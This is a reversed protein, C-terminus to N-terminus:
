KSYVREIGEDRAAQLAEDSFEKEGRLCDYIYVLEEATTKYDLNTENLFHVVHWAADLLRDKGLNDLVWQPNWYYLTNEDIEGDLYQKIRKQYENKYKSLMKPSEMKM